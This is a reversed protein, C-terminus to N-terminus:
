QRSLVEGLSQFGDGSGNGSRRSRITLPSHPRSTPPSGGPTGAVTPHMLQEDEGPLTNNDSIWTIRYLVTLRKWIEPVWFLCTPVGDLVANSGDRIPRRRSCLLARLTHTCNFYKKQYLTSCIRRITSEKSNLPDNLGVPSAGPERSIFSHLIETYYYQDCRYSRFCFM